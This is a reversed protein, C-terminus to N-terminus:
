DVMVPDATTTCVPCETPCSTAIDGDKRAGFASCDYSGNEKSALRSNRRMAEDDPM